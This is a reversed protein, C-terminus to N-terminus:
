TGVFLRESYYRDRGSLFIKKSATEIDYTVRKFCIYTYNNDCVAYQARCDRNRPQGVSGPNIYYYLGYSDFIYAYGQKHSHGGFVLPKNSEPTLTNSFELSNEISSDYRGWLPDYKTGHYMQVQFHPGSQSYRTRIRGSPSVVLKRLMDTTKSLSLERLTCDFSQLGRESKAPTTSKDFVSADHNGAICTIKICSSLDNLVRVVESSNAGYDVIDGLVLIESDKDKMYESADELVSNLAELNGHIDSLIIKM